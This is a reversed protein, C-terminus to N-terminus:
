NGVTFFVFFGKKLGNRAWYEFLWPKGWFVRGLIQRHNPDGLMQLIHLTPGQNGWSLFMPTIPFLHPQKECRQRIQKVWEATLYVCHKYATVWGKGGLHSIILAWCGFAPFHDNWTVRQMARNVNVDSTSMRNIFLLYLEPHGRESWM